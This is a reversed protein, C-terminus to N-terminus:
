ATPYIFIIKRLFVLQFLDILLVLYREAFDMLMLATNTNWNIRMTGGVPQQETHMENVYKDEHKNRKCVYEGRTKEKM